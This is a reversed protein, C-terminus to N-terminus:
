LEGDILAPLVPRAQWFVSTVVGSERALDLQQTSYAESLAPELREDYKFRIGGCMTAEEDADLVLAFVRFSNSLAKEQRLDTPPIAVLRILTNHDSPQDTAAATLPHACSRHPNPGIM